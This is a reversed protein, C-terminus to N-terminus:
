GSHMSSSVFNEFWLHDIILRLGSFIEYFSLQRLPLRSPLIPPHIRPSLFKSSCLRWILVSLVRQLWLRTVQSTNLFNFDRKARLVSHRQSTRFRSSEDSM